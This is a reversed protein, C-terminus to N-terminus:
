EFLLKVVTEEGKEQHIIRLLYLGTKMSPQRRIDIREGAQVTRDAMYVQQGGATYLVLKYRGAGNAPVVIHVQDAVPNPYVKLNGMATRNLTVANSYLSKGSLSVARVRYQQTKNDHQTDNFSFAAASQMDKAEVQGIPVYADGMKREVVYQAIAEGLYKNWNLYNRSDQASGHLELNGPLIGGCDGTLNYYALRTLCGGNVDVVCVYTGLKDPTLTDILYQHDNSVLVSDTPSTKHYWSYSANAVYDVRLTTSAMVCNATTTAVINQLPLVSVDNLTANGCYDVARLRVLSYINGNNISFIPNSQPGAVISPMAPVSGIIEYKYPAAGGTVVAGVSFSNNDCQYSASRGLEPYTYPSVVFTDNPKNTCSGPLNYQVVYTGPGLDNWKYSSMTSTNFPLSVPSGDKSIIQPNIVGLNSAVSITVESSGNQFAGSPCKAVVNISSSFTSIVPTILKEVTRGCNDAVVVRYQDGPMLAPLNTFKYSSGNGSKSDVEVGYPDYVKVTYPNGGATITVSLSTTNLECSPSASLSYNIAVPLASVTRTITTDYCADYATITATGWAVNTFVGISNTQVNGLADTLTFTPNLMNNIANVSTNFGTCSRGTVTFNGLSPVKPAGTFCVPLTVANCAADNVVDICYSGYPVNTFTGSTNTAVTGGLENKLIFTPNSLNVRNTVTVDFGNCKYNSLQAPGVSPVDKTVTICRQITTDYCAPDNKIYMCYTGYPLGTFSGTSNCAVLTNDADYLCIQPNLIRRFGGISLDITNCNKVVGINANVSPRPKVLTFCREILTDYCSASNQIRMCYSGYPVNNFTGNSNCGVLVNAATYLCFTPNTLNTQGGISVDADFCQEDTVTVAAAVSPVQPLVTFCRSVTTDYCGDKATICYSGNPINTFSGTNNCAVQVGADNLLCFLPNTFNNISSVNANFLNCDVRSTSVNAALSPKPMQATFDRRITTDFCADKVNIYYTGPAINTFQGTNNCAVQVNSSNFLCYTPNTLNSQGTIQASFSNCSVTSVTVLNAVSPFVPNVWTTSMINGCGDKVVLPVIRKSGAPHTFTYSAYWTTDGPANVVGYRFDNFVSGSNNQNGRSDRLRIDFSADSCNVRSGSASLIWWNYGLVVVRRTQIGGCSDKLEVSYDGGGLGTFTGTMNSQGVHDPSPAVITYTFPSRGGTQDDLTITGNAGNMCTVDTKRLTFRPDNYSGTVVVNDMTDLCNSVVDQIVVSYSGATLGTILSSSTFNTNVPGTVKYNYSGSGGTVNVQITGTAMCRSESPVASVIELSSCPQACLEGVTFISLLAAMITYLHKM